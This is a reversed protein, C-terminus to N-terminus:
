LRYKERKRYLTAESIGLEEAVRLRDERSEADKLSAALVSYEYSELLQNLTLRETGPQRPGSLLHVPLDQATVLDGLAINVLFEVINRLERVNGPWPYRLLIQEAQRDFGAISKHLKKNYHRLFHYALLLIDAGRERLPPMQMPIVNLRYYLDQRFTHQRIMEELDRNTAAVIRVDVPIYKRGGIREITREQLFRLLKTQALLPLEGIEDLFLTGGNALELKGVAGSKKAGTFSGSEYGFLESEVLAEPIAGCNIAIMPGDRRGSESHLFKALEEKGTGSEGTILVTSDSGAVRHGLALLEQIQPCRGLIRSHTNQHSVETLQIQLRSSREVTRLQSTILLDIYKLFEILRDYNQQIYAAEDDTFASVGIVGVIQGEDDIPYGMETKIICAEWHRCGACVPDNRVDTVIRAKKEQFLREFFVSSKRQADEIITQYTSTGYIRNLEDDVVTVQAGIFAAIASVCSQVFPEIQSLRSM